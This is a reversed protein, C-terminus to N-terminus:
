APHDPSQDLLDMQRRRIPRTSFIPRPAADPRAPVGQVSLASALDESTSITAGAIPVSAPAPLSHGFSLEFYQYDIFGVAGDYNFDAQDWTPNPNQRNAFLIKLDATDVTRDRNADGNLQFFTLTFDDGGLGDGNGDLMGGDALTIQSAKLRATYNGDPLLTQNLGPFTWVATHNAATYDLHLSATPIIQGTTENRVEIDDTSISSAVDQDFTFVLRQGTQYPFNAAAIKAGPLPRLGFNKGSVTANAVLAAYQETTVATGYINLRWSNWTGVDQGSEDTVQLTWTGKAIEDWDRTSSFTWQSYNAHTDDHVEALVSRTGDPSTLVVRLDGRAPHTADFV